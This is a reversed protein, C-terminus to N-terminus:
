VQLQILQTLANNKVASIYVYIYIYTQKSLMALSVIVLLFRPTEQTKKREGDELWQAAVYSWGRFTSSM